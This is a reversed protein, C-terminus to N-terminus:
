RCRVPPRGPCPSRDLGAGGHHGRQAVLPEHRAGLGVHVVHRVRVAGPRRMSGDIESWHNQSMSCSASPPSRAPARHAAASGGRSCPWPSGRSARASGAKTCRAGATTPGGAAPRTDRRPCRRRCRPAPPRPSPSAVGVHEVGPERRAQPGEGRQAPGLLGILQAGEIGGVDEGRRAVDDEEPNRAHDHESDLQGASIGNVSTFMWETMWAGSPRRMDFDSPVPM